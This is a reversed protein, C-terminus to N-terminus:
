EGESNNRSVIIEDRVNVRQQLTHVIDVLARYFAYTTERAEREDPKTSTFSSFSSEVLSNITRNFVENNLLAEADDGASILQEENM